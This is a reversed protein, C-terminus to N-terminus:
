LWCAFVQTPLVQTSAPESTTVDNVFVPQKDEVVLVSRGLNDTM